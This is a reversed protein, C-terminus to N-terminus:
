KKVWSQVGMSLFLYWSDFKQADKFVVWIDQNKFVEKDM